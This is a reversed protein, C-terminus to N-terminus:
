YVRKKPQYKTITAPKYDLSIHGSTDKTAFTHKLFNVDDRESFDERSHAGRSEKRSIASVAVIEATDLLNGLEIEDEIQAHSSLQLDLHRLLPDVAGDAQDVIIDGFPAPRDRRLGGARGPQL